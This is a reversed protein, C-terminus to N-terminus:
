LPKGDLLRALFAADSWTRDARGLRVVVMRRSPFVYLRQNYRGAAMFLGVSAGDYILRDQGRPLLLREPVQKWFSSATEASDAARLDTNLWVGLGFGPSAATPETLPTVDEIVHKGNWRGDQLLLRGIRGLERATLQAGDYLRPTLEASRAAPSEGSVTQWRGGPIDLPLFFHDKMLEVDSTKRMLSGLVQIATPGFRFSTGPPRVLPASLAEGFTPIEGRGVGEPKLGSTFHLLQSLTIESKASSSDWEPFVDAIPTDLDPADDAALITLIPFLMSIETMAHPEEPDYGNQYAELVLSGDIWVCVLLADGAKEASYTRAQELREQRDAVPSTGACGSGLVVLVFLLGAGSHFRLSRLSM